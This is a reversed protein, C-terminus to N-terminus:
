TTVKSFKLKRKLFPKELYAYSLQAVAITMVVVSVYAFPLRLGEPMGLLLWLKASLFIMLPHYVYIGYSIKGLTNFVWSDVSLVRAPNACGNVILVVALVAVVNHDFMSVLHFWNVAALAIMSWAVLQLGPATVIRLFTQNRLYLAHAGLSGIAMCDFQNTGLFGALAPMGMRRSLMLLVFRLVLFLALFIAVRKATIKPDVKTTRFFWPWFLYFQEEVGISWFHGIFPYSAELVFPVNAALVFYFVLLGSPHEPGWATVGALSVIAIAAALVFFYLPWIRLVRRMYFAGIAIPAKERELLLLYSILFGSLSFFITVGYGALSRTAFSTGGFFSIGAGLHSLMVAVAAIARLGNLGALHLVGSKTPALLAEDFTPKESRLALQGIAACAAFVGLTVLQERV